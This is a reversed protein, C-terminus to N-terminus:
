GDRGTDPRKAIEGEIEIAEGEIVDGPSYSERRWRSGGLRSVFKQALWQRVAAPLLLLGLVDSIFGPVILLLGAVMFLFGAAADKTAFTRGMAPRRLAAVLGLGAWRIVAAGLIGAGVILLLTALVGIRQGVAILVALELFFGLFIALALFRHM